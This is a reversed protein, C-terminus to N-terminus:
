RSCDGGTCNLAVEQCGRATVTVSGSWSVGTNTRAFYAHTGPPLTAVVRAEPVPTCNSTSTQTEFYRRLTGVYVGNVEIDMSSWGRPTNSSFAATGNAQSNPGPGVPNVIGGEDEPDPVTAGCGLTLGVLVLAPITLRM